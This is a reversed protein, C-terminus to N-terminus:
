TLLISRIEGFERRLKIWSNGADRTLLLQGSVSYACVTESEAESASFAWITSNPEIPLTARKWSLGGDRSVQIAGQTGPPGDGNGLFLTNPDNHKQWLGRCYRWPFSEKVNQPVWTAGGDSSLNLDNNTSALLTKAGNEGNRPLVVLSHIDLSSLGEGIRSWTKGGDVSRHVGDIEVGAWLSLSDAPDAAICTVRPYRIAVCEPSLHTEARIWTEGADESLYLASPCVGVLIREPEGRLVLLSWVAVGGMWGEGPDFPTNLRSWNDGGDESRYLGMNTGAYLRNSNSPSVALARVDAELFMGEYGRSFTAGGDSSRFVGEGVTGVYIM